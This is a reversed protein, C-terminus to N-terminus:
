DAVKTCIKDIDEKTLGTQGNMGPFKTQLASETKCGWAGDQKVGLCGQLRKVSECKNCMTIKNGTGDTAMDTSTCDTYQTCPKVGQPCGTGPIPTPQQKSCCFNCREGSKFGGVQETRPGAICKTGDYYWSDNPSPLGTMGPLKVKCLALEEPTCKEQQGGGGCKEWQYDVKANKRQELTKLKKGCCFIGRMQNAFGENPRAFYGTAFPAGNKERLYIYNKVDDCHIDGYVNYYKTKDGAKLKIQGAYFSISNNAELGYFMTKIPVKTKVKGQHSIVELEARSFYRGNVDAAQEVLLQSEKSEQILKKFDFNNHLNLIRSKEEESILFKKSM